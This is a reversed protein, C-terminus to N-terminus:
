NNKLLGKNYNSVAVIAWIICIIYYFLLFAFLFTVISYMLTTNGTYFGILWFVGLLVPAFTMILGGRVSAYFLGFSGFFMTLLIAIGVDKQSLVIIRQPPFTQEGASQQSTVSTKRKTSTTITWITLAIFGVIFLTIYLTMDRESNKTSHYSSNEHKPIDSLNLYKNSVYGTKGKHEIHYWQGRNSIFEVEDGKNLIFHVSYNTGPGSRVNLETTAIYYDTAFSSLSILQFLVALVSIKVIVNLNMTPKTNNNVTQKSKWQFNFIRVGNYEQIINEM